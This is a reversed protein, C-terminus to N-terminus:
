TYSCLIELTVSGLVCIKLISIKKKWSHLKSSENESNM